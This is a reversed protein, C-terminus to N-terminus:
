RLLGAWQTPRRLDVNASRSSSDSTSQVIWIIQLQYCTPTHQIAFRSSLNATQPGSIAAEPKRSSFLGLLNIVLRRKLSVNAKLSVHHDLVRQCTAITSHMTRQRQPQVNDRRQQLAACGVLLTQQSKDVGIRENAVVLNSLLICYQVKLTAGILLIFVALLRQLFQLEGYHRCITHRCLRRLTLANDPIM